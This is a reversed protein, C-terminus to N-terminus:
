EWGSLGTVEAQNFLEHSRLISSTGGISHRWQHPIFPECLISLPISVLPTFITSQPVGISRISFVYKPTTTIAPHRGVRNSSTHGLTFPVIVPRIGTGSPLFTPMIRLYHPATGFSNPTGPHNAISPLTNKHSAVKIRGPIEDSFSRISNWWHNAKMFKKLQLKHSIFVPININICQILPRSSPSSLIRTWCYLFLDNEREYSTQLIKNYLTPGRTLNRTLDNKNYNYLLQYAIM